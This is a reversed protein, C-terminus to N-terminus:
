HTPGTAGSSGGHGNQQPNSKLRGVRIVVTGGKKFKSGGTPSQALVNGDQSATNVTADHVNVLFGAAQLANTAAGESRGTVDPVAVMDPAKAVTIGIETGKKVTTGAPVSQSLVTGPKKNQSVSETVKPSLGKGRLDSQAQDSTEGVVGPVTVPKPGSSVFLVVETGIDLSTGTDPQTSIALGSAVSDSPQTQVRPKFGAKKLLAVARGRTDGAVFPVSATGPGTSVTLTITSGDKIKEGALPNQAIVQDKPRPSRQPVTTVQFGANQLRTRAITLDQNVVAPVLTKPVPKPKLLLYGGAGAGLLLLLALLAWPWRRNEREVPDDELPPPVAEGAMALPAAALATAPEIPPPVVVAPAFAATQQGSRGAVIRERADQLAAIFADADQPRRAPDKQLAWMVVADLEPPVGPNLTSPAPPAETVHKLAVTVASDGEFPVRGTLLEWLIVGIAYLDSTAGVAHGQAQEPSLYQATGMISGTETMDSAGARAIGFDTVKARGESDLIVNHPKLDRHIIGRGHAFRAAKLVQLTTDIARIPELPAEDRVVQKLTRGELYEMAIYYTGDWEGRDYVGVVNPHQLGAASSAERRFREVFDGDQAFRRHLLKLAVKRGLQTDDACFVDAMGGSGVRNRVRYRGDVLTEPAIEAM